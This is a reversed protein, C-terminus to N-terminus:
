GGASGRSLARRIFPTKADAYHNMDPWGRPALDQKLRAYEDRLEASERLRDRFGLHREEESGGAPWFHVHFGLDGEPRRFMLHRLERVRLEYGLPALRM